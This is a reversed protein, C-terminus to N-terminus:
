LANSPPNFRSLRLVAQRMSGSRASSIARTWDERPASVGRTDGLVWLPRSEADIPGEIHRGLSNDLHYRIVKDFAVEKIVNRYGCDQVKVELVEPSLCYLLLLEM